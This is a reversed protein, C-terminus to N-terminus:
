QVRVRGTSTTTVSLTKNQVNAVTIADSRTAFGRRDFQVVAGTNDIRVSPPLAITTANSWTTGDASSEMVYSTKTGVIRIRVYRNTSVAKMRARSVDMKVADAGRLLQNQGYWRNISPVATGAIVSVMTLGAVLEVVSLGAQSALRGFRGRRATAAGKTEGRNGDNPTTM